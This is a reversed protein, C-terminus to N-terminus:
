CESYMDTPQHYGMSAPHLLNSVNEGSLSIGNVSYPPTSKLQSAASAHPSSYAMSSMHRLHDTDSPSSGVGGDLGPSGQLPAYSLDGGPGRGDTVAGPFESWATNYCLERCKRRVSDCRSSDLMFDPYPHFESAPMGAPPPPAIGTGQTTQGDGPSPPTGSPSTTFTDDGLTYVQSSTLKAGQETVDCKGKRRISSAPSNDFAPCGAREPSTKPKQNASSLGAGGDRALASDSLSPM